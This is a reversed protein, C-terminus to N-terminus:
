RERSSPCVTRCHEAGHKWLSCDARPLSPHSLKELLDVVFYSVVNPKKRNILKLYYIIPRVDFALVSGLGFLLLLSLIELVIKQRASRVSLSSDKCFGFFSKMKDNMKKRFNADRGRKRTSVATQPLMTSFM